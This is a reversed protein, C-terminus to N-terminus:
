SVALAGRLVPPKDSAVVGGEREVTVALLVVGADARFAAVGPRPGLVGVSVKRDGVVAWLQYTLEESLAPLNHRVLYGSGDPTLVADAHLRGDDSRLDVRRAGPDLLAATVVGELGQDELAASLKDLREEQRVVQVGLAVLVVAAAALAALARGPRRSRPRDWRRDLRPLDLQPPAEELGRAIGEWVGPPAPAGVHALAAAVERHAAVESRCRPCERLHAEVVEAEDPDVADLAYAGLLEEIEPHTLRREM